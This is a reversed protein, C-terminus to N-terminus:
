RDAMLRELVAQLSRECFAQEFVTEVADRKRLLRVIERHLGLVAWRKAETPHKTFVPEVRVDKLKQRVQEESYGADNLQKLYRGWRGPEADGGLEKERLRASRGSGHEEVLNLLQFYFSIAQICEPSLLNAPESFNRERLLSAAGPVGLEELVRAFSIVLFDHDVLVRELGSEISRDFVLKNSSKFDNM